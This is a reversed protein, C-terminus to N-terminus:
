IIKVSGQAVEYMRYPLGRGKFLVNMRGSGTDTIFLQGFQDSCVLEMLRYVRDADLKDHIDDLLLMPKRKTEEDLVRYEALKLAILYTKQQGQSGSKRLPHGSIEFNLDDRHIGATTYELALDKNFSQSLISEFSESNLASQYSLSISERGDSLLNYYNQFIPQIREVFELRMKHIPEGYQTLQLNLIEMTSVDGQGKALQKLLANRQSLIRNYAILHDLYNRNYQAIVSDMFRRREESGGSILVGDAPNVVVLPILGIHDSLREYDKGNRKFVKKQGRKVGCYINDTEGDTRTFEGQVVFFPAEFRINQTDAPNLFSKCLALYHIAELLNTKGSGNSGTFCNIRESCEIELEEYNRFNILSLKRLLMSLRIDAFKWM